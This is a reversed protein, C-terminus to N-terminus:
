FNRPTVIKEKGGGGGRGQYRIMLEHSGGRPNTISGLKTLTMDFGYGITLNKNANFEFLLDFSDRVRYSAGIGFREKFWVNGNLDISLPAGKVRKLMISPRVKINSNVEIVYGTNFFLHTNHQVSAVDVSYRTTILQPASLGLYFKNTHYMVGAGVVPLGKSITNDFAPDYNNGISTRIDAFNARYQRIGAYMGFGLKGARSVKLHYAWNLLASTANSVGIKDNLIVAGLGLSGNMLSSNVSFSQTVPAGQIGFWQRRALLTASIANAHSGVYAPNIAQMNFMYQTYQPDQQAKAGQALGIFGLLCLGYKTLKTFVHKM